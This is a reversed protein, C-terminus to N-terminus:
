PSAGAQAEYLTGFWREPPIPDAAADVVFTAGTLVNVMRFRAEFRRVDRVCSEWEARVTVRDDRHIANLWGWHKVDERQQGSWKLYARNVVTWHGSNDTEFTAMRPNTSLMARQTNGLTDIKRGFTDLQVTHEALLQGHAALELSRANSQSFLINLKTPISEPGDLNVAENVRVVVANTHNTQSKLQLLEGQMIPLQEIAAWAAQIRDWACRLVYASRKSWPWVHIIGAWVAAIVGAVAALAEAVQQIRDWDM